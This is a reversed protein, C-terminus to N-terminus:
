SEHRFKTYFLSIFVGFFIWSILIHFILVWEYTISMQKDLDSDTSEITTNYVAANALLDTPEQTLTTLISSRWLQVFGIRQYHLSDRTEHILTEKFSISDLQHEVFITDYKVSTRPTGKESNVYYSYDIHPQNIDYSIGADKFFGFYYIISFLFSIIVFNTFFIRISGTTGMLGYVANMPRLIILLTLAFLLIGCWWQKYIWPLKSDLEVHFLFLLPILILVGLLLIWCGKLEYIVKLPSWLIITLLSVLLIRRNVWEMTPSLLVFGLTLGLLIVWIYSFREFHKYMRVIISNWIWLFVDGVRKMCLVLIYRFFMFLKQSKRQTFIWIRLNKFGKKGM